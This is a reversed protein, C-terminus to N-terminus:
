TDQRYTAMCRSYLLLFYAFTFCEMVGVSPILRAKGTAILQLLSLSEKSATKICAILICCVANCRRTPAMIPGLCETKVQIDLLKLTIRNVTMLLTNSKSIQLFFSFVPLLTYANEMVGQYLRLM